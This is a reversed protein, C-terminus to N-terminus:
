WGGSAGGGGFGGGGFGGGFGGGVFSGGSSGSGFGRSRGMSSLIIVDVLSTSRRGSNKGGRGKNKSSLAILLVIFLFFVIGFPFRQEKKFERTEQFAGNLATFIADAGLDLGQYYNGKKFQPIIIRNIIRETMLDTIRYEIGYGTNIDIRRDGKALLILIGNDEEAQGIGWAQGWKAGLFSIDEGKTSEIIAVVIQTSTAEAYRVLKTELAKKQAPTLLKAFDYLSTQVEPIAPIEFQATVTHIACFFAFVLICVSKIVHKTKM